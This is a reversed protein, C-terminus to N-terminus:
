LSGLLLIGIVALKQSAPMQLGLIIPIPVCLIIVDILMAGVGNGFFFKPINICVGKAAPNTYQEWFYPLPRCSVFITVVVVVWYSIVLFMCFYLSWRLNFIRRYFM